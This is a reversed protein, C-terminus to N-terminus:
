AEMVFLPIRPSVLGEEMATIGTIVKFISGPEFTDNVLRNRWMKQLKEGDNAGEFNQIGEYPNNPDFDPKNVMALIEGTKPDMVLVSVAKAKQDIQAQTAVKEAFISYIKM